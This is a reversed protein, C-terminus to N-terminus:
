AQVVTQKGTPNEDLTQSTDTDLYTPYLKYDLNHIVALLNPFRLSVLRERKLSSQKINRSERKDSGSGSLNKGGPIGLGILAPDVQLAFLLESNAAAATPLESSSELYSKIPEIEIGKGEKEGDTFTFLGKYANEEKTLHDNIAVQLEEIRAIQWAMTQEATDCNPPTDWMIYKRKMVELPVRIIYKITMQNKYIYSLMKPVSIAVDAYGNRICAYYLQEPYYFKGFSRYMLPLVFKQYKKPNTPDYIDLKATDKPNPNNGFNANVYVKKCKGDEGRREFRCSPTDLVKASVLEDRGNNLICEVFAIYFTELSEVLEAQILEIEITRKLKEWIDCAEAKFIKKGDTYEDRGWIIGNGYHMSANIDLGSGLVGIQGIKNLLTLPLDDNDGWPAWENQKDEEADTLVTHKKSPNSKLGAGVADTSVISISSALMITDNSFAIPDKPESM